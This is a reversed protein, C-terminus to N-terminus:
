GFVPLPVQDKRLCLLLVLPAAIIDPPLVSLLTVKAPVIPAVLKEPEDDPVFVPSWTSGVSEENPANDVLPPVILPVIFTVPLIM